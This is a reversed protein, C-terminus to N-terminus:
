SVLPLTQLSIASVPTFTRNQVGRKASFLDIRHSSCLTCPKAISNSDMAKLFRLQRQGGRGLGLMGSWSVRCPMDPSCVSPSGVSLHHGSLTNGPNGSICWKQGAFLDVCQGKPAFEGGKKQKLPYPKIRLRDSFLLIPSIRVLVQMEVGVGGKQCPFPVFGAGVRVRSGLSM